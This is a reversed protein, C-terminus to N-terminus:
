KPKERVTTSAWTPGSHKANGEIPYPTQDEWRSNTAEARKLNLRLIVEDKPARDVVRNSTM